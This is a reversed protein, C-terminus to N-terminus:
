SDSLNPLYECLMNGDKDIKFLWFDLGGFGQSSTSGGLLFDNADTLQVSVTIDDGKGGYTKDWLLNGSADLKMIWADSGGVGKSMTRGVVLYNGDQTQYITIAIDEFSGGYTKDWEKEGNNNTKVIWADAGGAGKSNTGGAAIYGNDSTHQVSFFIEHHLGGFTKEWEINGESDLKVVWAQSSTFVDNDRYGAAIYDGKSTRSISMIADFDEGGLTMDWLITGKNDVKIVYMDWAGLDGLAILGAIIYSKDVTEIISNASGSKDVIEWLLEGNADIKSVWFKSAGSIGEISGAFVYNGDSTVIIESLDDLGHGGFTKEWVLEGKADIKAILADRCPFGWCLGINGKSETEGAVVFGGDDTMKISKLEDDKEGGYTKEWCKQVPPVCLGNECLEGNECDGCTGGCGNEGCEKGDCDPQCADDFFNEDYIVDATEFDITEEGIYEESFILENNNKSNDAGNCALSNAFSFTIIYLIITKQKVM